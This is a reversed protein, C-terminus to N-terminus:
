FTPHGHSGRGGRHRRGQFLIFTPLSLSPFPLSPISFSLSLSLSPPLSPPLSLSTSFLSPVFLLVSVLGWADLYGGSVASAAEHNEFSVFGFGRSKGNEDEMVVASVIPGFKEFEARLMDSSYDKGFNKVYVNTYRMNTADGEEEKQQQQQHQKHKWKEM